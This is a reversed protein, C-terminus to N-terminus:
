DELMNISISFDNLNGMANELMTKYYPLLEDETKKNAPISKLLGVYEEIEKLLLSNVQSKKEDPFESSNLIYLRFSDIYGIHANIIRSEHYQHFSYNSRIDKYLAVFPSNFYDLSEPSNYPNNMNFRKNCIDINISRLTDCCEAVQSRITRIIDLFIYESNKGVEWNSKCFLAPKPNNPYCRTSFFEFHSSVLELYIKGACSYHVFTKDYDLLVFDAIGELPVSSRAWEDKTVIQSFSVLHTWKPSDKLDYMNWLSEIIDEVDLIGDFHELIDTISIGNHGNDCRTETRNSLLSLIMRAVSVSNKRRDTFDLM